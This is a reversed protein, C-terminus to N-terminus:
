RKKTSKQETKALKSMFDRLKSLKNSALMEHIKQYKSAYNNCLESTLELERKIAENQARLEAILVDKKKASIEVEALRSNTLYMQQMQREVLQEEASKKVMRVLGLFLAQIEKDTIYNKREQPVPLVLIKGGLNVRCKQGSKEIECTIKEVLKVKNKLLNRYKNQYRIALKKDGNALEFCSARLSKGNDLLLTKLLNEEDFETFHNTKQLKIGNQMLLDRVRSNEREARLLNYYFNRVSYMNRNYKSAFKQFVKLLIKEDSSNTQQVLERIEALTWGLIKNEM